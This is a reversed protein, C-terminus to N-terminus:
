GLRFSGGKKECESKTAKVWGQGKCSNRGACSNGAGHCAASGKCANIGHCEGMARPDANTPSYGKTDNAMATSVTAAVLLGGLAANMLNYNVKTM